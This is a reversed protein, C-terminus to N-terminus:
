AKWTKAKMITFGTDTDWKDPDRLNVIKNVSDWVLIGGYLRQVQQINYLLDKMDTELNFVGFDEAPNFGDVMVDCVGLEWGSDRLLAWLNYGASGRPYPVNNYRKGNVMLPETSKPLLVVSQDDIFEEDKPVNYAQVFRKSLTYWIEVLSM